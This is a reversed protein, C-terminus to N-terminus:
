INPSKLHNKRKKTRLSSEKSPTFSLTDDHDLNYNKSKKRKSANSLSRSGKEIFCYNLTM